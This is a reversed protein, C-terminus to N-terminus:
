SASLGRESIVRARLKVLQVLIDLTPTKIGHAQAIELPVTYLADIEMPRRAELDQLISPKHGSKSIKGLVADRDIKLQMGLSDTILQGESLINHATDLAAQHAFLDKLKVGSLVSMPGTVMNLLLKAWIRERINQCAVADLNSARLIEVIDQLRRSLSGDPEGFEFRAEPYDLEIVAPEIVTASCYAISGIVREPGITNWITGHHDLRSIKQNDEPGGHKFYYWWPIGNMLFVLVTQPGLLPKIADLAFELTPAKLTVFVIDQIGFEAPSDTVDVPAHFEGGGIRVTFGRSQIASLQTGRAVARVSHGARKLSAAM